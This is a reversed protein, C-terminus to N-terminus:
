GQEARKFRRHIEELPLRLLAPRGFPSTFPDSTLVLQDLLASMEENGLAVGSSLASGLAFAKALAERPGTHGQEFPEALQQLFDRLAGEARGIPLHVPIGRMQWAGNGFPELHFGLKGLSELHETLLVGEARTLEVVEPFLLEQADVGKGSDLANLARDYLIRQSAANQDIMLLGQSDECVVYTKSWQFFRGTGQQDVFTKNPEKPRQFLKPSLQVVKGYEPLSFMDQTLSDKTKAQPKSEWRPAAPSAVVAPAESKPIEFRTAPVEAVPSVRTVVPAVVDQVRPVPASAPVSQVQVPTAKVDGLGPLAVIGTEAANMLADRLAHHVALFVQNENSFRVERKAPHVNVDFEAGNMEVFLVVVPYGAKGYPEYARQVAKAIISNFIPRKGLYFYQLNRRGRTEEPPSAFGHVRINGEQYDFATMGKAVSNGIVESVRSRLTGPIGTFLERGGQKLEFRKDFHALAIRTFVDSIKSTELSETGLFTRRVPTNYFLDQVSFQTGVARAVIERSQIVGGELSLSHGIDLDQIRSEIRLRSVSAISAVAEGRFGNTAIKLLDETSRLKSTTHRLPCLELDDPGMGSGNDSIRILDKGGGELAVRVDTAGADLANEVLEKVVSAPREIVEGAAIQNIVIDSLAQIKPLM